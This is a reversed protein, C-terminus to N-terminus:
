LPEYCSKYTSLTLWDKHSFLFIYDSYPRIETHSPHKTPLYDPAPNNYNGAHHSTSWLENGQNDYAAVVGESFAVYVNGQANKIYLISKMM